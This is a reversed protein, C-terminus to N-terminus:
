RFLSHLCSLLSADSYGTLRSLEAPWAPWVGLRSRAALVCACAVVSPRHLMFQEDQLALDMFYQLRELLANRLAQAGSTPPPPGTSPHDPPPTLASATGVLEAGRVLDGRGLVRTALFEVFHAVTVLSLNWSFFELLIAEVARYDRLPYCHPVLRHLEPVHPVNLDRDEFKTALLLCGLAVLSLHAVEVRHNDMFLDLLRVALHVSTNGLQLREGVLRLMDVLRRREGLQPSRCRFTMGTKEKRLFYSFIDDAYDTVWWNKLYSM